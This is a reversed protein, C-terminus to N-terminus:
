ILNLNDKSNQRFGKDTTINDNIEKDKTVKLFENNSTAFANFRSKLAMAEYNTQNIKKNLTITKKEVTKLYRHKIATKLLCKSLLKNTKIKM